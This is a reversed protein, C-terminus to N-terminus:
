PSYCNNVVYTLFAAKNFMDHGSHRGSNNGDTKKAKRKKKVLQNLTLM